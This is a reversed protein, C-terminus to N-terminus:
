SRSKRSRIGTDKEARVLCHKARLIKAPLSRHVLAEPESKGSYIIFPVVSM